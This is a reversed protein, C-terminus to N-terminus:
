DATDTNPTGFMDVLAVEDTIQKIQFAPGWQFKGALAATGTSNNVVTSQVTTEKLEVSPSLLSM